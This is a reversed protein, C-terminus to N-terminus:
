VWRTEPVLNKAKVKWGLTLRGVLLQMRTSTAETATPGPYARLSLSGSTNRSNINEKSMAPLVTVRRRVLILAKGKIGNLQDSGGTFGWTGKESEAGKM